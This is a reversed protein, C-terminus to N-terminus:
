AIFVSIWKSLSDGFLSSDTAQTHCVHSYVFLACRASRGAYSRQSLLQQVHLSINTVSTSRSFVFFFHNADPLRDSYVIRFIACAVYRVNASCKRMPVALIYVM